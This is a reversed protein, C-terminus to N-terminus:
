KQFISEEVVPIIKNLCEEKILSRASGYKIKNNEDRYNPNCLVEDVLKALEGDSVAGSVEAMWLILEECKIRKFTWKDRSAECLWGSPWSEMASICHTLCWVRCAECLWGSPWSKMLHWYQTPKENGVRKANAIYGGKEQHYGGDILRKTQPYPVKEKDEFYSLIHYNTLTSGESKTM